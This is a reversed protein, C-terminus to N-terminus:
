ARQRGSRQPATIVIRGDYLWPESAPHTLAPLGEIESWEWSPESGPILSPCLLLEAFNPVRGTGPAWPALSKPRRRVPTEISGGVVAYRLRLGEIAEVGAALVAELASKM